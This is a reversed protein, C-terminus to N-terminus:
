RKTVEIKEYIIEPTLMRFDLEVNTNMDIQVEEKVTYYGLCMAEVEIKGISANEIRYKGEYDTKVTLSGIRVKSGPLTENTKADVVQGRVITNNDNRLSINCIVLYSKHSSCSYFTLGLLLNSFLIILIKKVQLALLRVPALGRQLTGARQSQKKIQQNSNTDYTTNLFRM